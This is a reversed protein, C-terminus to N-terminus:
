HQCRPCYYATRGGLKRSRIPGACAPCPAGRKRSLRMRGDYADVVYPAGHEDPNATIFGIAENLVTFLDETFAYGTQHKRSGTRAAPPRSAPGTCHRM